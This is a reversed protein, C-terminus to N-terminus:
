KTIELFQEELSKRTERLESLVIGNEFCYKNVQIGTISDDVSLIVDDESKICSSVGTMKEMKQFLSDMDTARVVIQRTAGVLDSILSHAILKGKKLIAVESCVKEVEDLQHSALVITKGRSAVENILQRIEAIGQPDLGNTPEDLVLVEPDSLLASAIALRQKMGLSFTKFNADKRDWLNVIKLVAETRAPIDQVHKIEGIIRLNRVATLYPYFNPTELLAGIKTRNEDNTGNGFWSYTGTNANIVGLLIGLTTTKGSGNPGLLGFVSGKNVRISLNELACINGYRKSLGNIELITSSM